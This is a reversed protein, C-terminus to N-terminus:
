NRADRFREIRERSIPHTSIYSEFMKQSKGSEIASDVAKHLCFMKTKGQEVCEAYVESYFAEIKEMIHAFYETDLGEELMGNLAYDDAEREMERSYGQSALLSPFAAIASSSSAVDGTVMMALMTLGFQQIAFRLSHRHLVHGIEHLMIAQIEENEEALGILDDTFVIVGNPLAFANAGIMDSKRFRLQLPISSNAREALVDFLTSLQQQQQNSVESAELWNDDMYQEIGDGIAEFVAPSLSMAIQRSLAPVGWKVLAFTSLVVVLLTLVVYRKHSELYHIVGQRDVYGLDRCLQDVADNDDTEFQGGDPLGIYRATSGIRPSITLESISYQAGDIVAFRISGEDDYHMVHDHASSTKGSFLLGQIFKM